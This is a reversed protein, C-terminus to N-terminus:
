NKEINLKKMDIKHIKIQNNKKEEGNKISSLNLQNKEREKEILILSETHFPRKLKRGILPVVVVVM